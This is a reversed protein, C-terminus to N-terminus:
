LCILAVKGNQTPIPFCLTNDPTQTITECADGTGNGNSDAQDANAILPCNDLADVIGDSDTDTDNDQNTGSVNLSPLAAYITDNSAPSSIFITFAIDGDVVDDNVGTVTVTQATLANGPTFTLDTTLGLTVENEDSSSLSLTVSDTPITDLQVDFSDTGGSESTILGSLPTISIGAIDDDTNSVSIDTPNLNNYDPDASSAAQTVISYLVDGDDLQDDIGSITIIQPTTGNTNTFTLLPLDITGEAPNDSALALMVDAAPLSNLAVSFQATGGAETTTLGSVPAINFKAIECADGTGNGNSDLQDTNAILPCNDLADIITDSDTDIDNDQNSGSANVASLTAYITDNSNSTSVIITFAIDGDDLDDDVGTVTVTQSTLANGPTFTLNAPSVTVEGTDSSSLLLTVNNTPLTDLQVEFSDSSGSESTTLGSAPVLTIGATDDDTNSVSIDAPNLNSYNPDTSTAPQTVINYNMDGDDVQDDIGSITVTHAQNWNLTTFTLLPLDITGEATNDSALSLTVNELPLSDLVVSFQATGGAETTTLGSLPTISIGATDDDSNTVSVDNPDLSDYKVDTSTAPSTMITYAIDGDDVADDVGSITIIQPTMGNGPTFVLSSLDLSGEALNNSALTINVNATPLTDLAVSFQATGGAETTTLGNIPTISIGASDDDTNSVSVDTANMGNYQGDASNAAATVITYGIDSDDVADDVGTITVIQPTMGNIATFTLLAQDPTGEGIDSSSLAITVDALPFTNLAVSFQATGGAETTILGSVPAISIGAVDNDTNSVSVDQPDLGNYNPDTSSSVGTIINYAVTGDAILDDQGTVTVTQAQNWNLTTFTVSAPSVTGESIDDSSLAISVDATPQSALQITFRTSTGAENTLLGNTPSVNVAPAPSFSAQVSQHDTMSIVCSATGICGAGNWGDFTYGPLPSATLTISTNTAYQGFCTQGCNIQSQNDVVSGMSTDSQVSLQKQTSSDPSYILAMQNNLGGVRNAYELGLLGEVYEIGALADKGQDYLVDDFTTDLYQVVIDNSGEYLITQFTASSQPGGPDVEKYLKIDHWQIILRRNPTTGELKSYITGTSAIPNFDAWFPAIFNNPAAPDPINLYEFYALENASGFKIMGNTHVWINSYDIGYFNFNFGIQINDDGDDLNGADVGDALLDTGGTADAWAFPYTNSTSYVPVSVTNLSHQHTLTPGGTNTANIQAIVTGSGTSGPTWNGSYIGDGAVSDPAVGDDLLSFDPDLNDLTVIVTAGTVTTGCDSLRVQFLTDYGVVATTNDQPANIYMRPNSGQTCTLAENVNLRGGTVTIGAMSAVPDATNLLLNKVESMSLAPNNAWLLAAAGSVYPTAMSTGSKYGYTSGIVTSYISEGPAALDVTTLGYNSSGWADAYAADKDDTAAVAIISDLTYSSPYHAQTDNDNGTNGAAAVFLIGASETQVIADYLSQSYGGGGWSNNTLRIDIGKTTKMTYVYNLLTIADSTNGNGTSDLYKLAMIKVNWNVGTVGQNNNGVAGIIGAVHTGHGNDDMPDSDGTGSTDIGYVDDVYGNGDNDILDGAIEGPNTWMNAALDPHDYQVGTDIIALITTSTGTTINWAEPADIDADVTGGTLGTNNLGYLDPYNPDNPTADISLPYDPEAYIVQGSAVLQDIAQKMSLTPDTIKIISFELESNTTAPVSGGSL